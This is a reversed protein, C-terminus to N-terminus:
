SGIMSPLIKGLTETRIQQFTKTGLDDESLLKAERQVERQLQLAESQIYPPCREEHLSITVLIWARFVTITVSLYVKVLVLIKDHVIRFILSFPNKLEDMKSGHQYTQTGQM